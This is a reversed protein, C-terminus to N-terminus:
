AMKEGMPWSKFIPRLNSHNGVARHPRLKRDEAVELRPVDNVPGSKMVEIKLIM